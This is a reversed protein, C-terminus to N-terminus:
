EGVLWTEIAASGGLTAIAILADVQEDEVHQRALRRIARSLVFHHLADGGDLPWNKKLRIAWAPCWVTLPSGPAGSQLLPVGLRRLTSATGEDIRVFGAQAREEDSAYRVFM